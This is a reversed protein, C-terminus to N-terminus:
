RAGRGFLVTKVTRVFIRFDLLPSLNKIYYLDYELKALADEVKVGHRYNVQAWGTIGPRISHRLSFFPIQPTFEKVEEEMLARPGIFSMDRKIVNWLQPIEDFRTVRLVKGVRTIRPDKKEGALERNNEQGVSMSRFKVLNFPKESLGIRRQVYFVPGASDLKIALAAILMVPSLLILLFLSMIIDIIKKVKVNYPTKRVGSIPVHVFWLNSVHQVPIKEFVIECFMPMEYVALGDIKADIIRKHLNPNMDHTIAIVLIDAKLEKGATSLADTGGIVPPASPLPALHWTAENDDLFGVVQFDARKSLLRYLDKGAWGAGIILVRLAKRVQSKWQSVLFRWGLCLLLILITNLLLIVTTYPRVNFVYFLTAILLDAIILALAFRSFYALRKSQEGLNYFDFVYFVILYIFIASLDPWDLFTALDPSVGFYLLPSLYFSAVILIFDGVFLLIQTKPVSRIM